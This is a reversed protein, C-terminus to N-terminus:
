TGTRRPAAIPTVEPATEVTGPVVHRVEVVGKPQRKAAPIAKVSASGTFHLWERASAVILFAALLLIGLVVFLVVTEATNM